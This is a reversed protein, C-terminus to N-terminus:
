EEPETWNYHYAVERFPAPTPYDQLLFDFNNTGPYFHNRLKSTQWIKRNVNLYHAGNVIPGLYVNPPQVWDPEIALIQNMADINHQIIWAFMDDYLWSWWDNWNDLDFAHEGDGILPSWRQSNFKMNAWIGPPDLEGPCWMLVSQEVDGPVYYNIFGRDWVAQTDYVLINHYMIPTWDAPPTPVVYGPVLVYGYMYQALQLDSYPYGKMGKCHGIFEPPLLERVFPQVNNESM